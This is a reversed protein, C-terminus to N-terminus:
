RVEVVLDPAEGQGARVTYTGSEVEGLDIHTVKEVAVAICVADLDSTGEFLTVTFTSGDREVQVSDLVACPEVGSWWKANIEIRNGTVRSVFESIGVPHVMQQGPTPVTLEPDGPGGPGVPLFGGGNGVNGDDPPSTVPEDPSRTNDGPDGSGGDPDRPSPSTGDVSPSQGAGEASSSPATASGGCAALGAGIMVILGVLLTRRTTSM